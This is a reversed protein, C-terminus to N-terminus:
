QLFRLMTSTLPIVIHAQLLVWALNITWFLLFLNIFIYTLMCISVMTNRLFYQPIRNWLSSYIEVFTSYKYIWTFLLIPELVVGFTWFVLNWDRHSVWDPDQILCVMWGLLIKRKFVFCLLLCFSVFCYLILPLWKITMLIFSDWSEQM